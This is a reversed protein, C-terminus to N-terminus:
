EILTSVIFEEKMPIIINNIKEGFFILDAERQNKIRSFDVIILHRKLYNTVIKEFTTKWLPVGLVSEWLTPNEEKSVM